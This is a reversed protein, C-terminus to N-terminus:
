DLRGLLVFRSLVLKALWDREFHYLGWSGPDPVGGLTIM